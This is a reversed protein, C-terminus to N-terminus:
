EAVALTQVRYAHRLTRNRVPDHLEVEFAEGHGLEGIVAQTGCFMATGPPLSAEGTLRQILERPDLLRTVKGEQYLAREGDRVRWCRMELSDWHDAVDEFRWVQTGVPKDCMQKSVTVDYAEVKRDTHDSGVGVYLGDNSQLLVVEIEGSSDDRPVEITDATTLLSAALPYFTPVSAPPKVGIAQLEEIHHQVAALDRGTWGAIILRQIDLALEGGGAVQFHLTPM